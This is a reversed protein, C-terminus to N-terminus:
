ALYDASQKNIMTIYPRAYSMGTPASAAQEAVLEVGNKVIEDWSANQSVIRLSPFFLSMVYKASAAGALLPSTLVISMKQLTGAIMAAQLGSNDTAYRPFDLKVKIEPFGNERPQMINDYGAGHVADINRKYSVDLGSVVLATTGAVDAGSATNMKVAAHSFLVPTDQGGFTLADMQTAANTSSSDIVTNGRGKLEFQIRGDGVKLGFETPMVSAAEYIISPYEAALTFFGAVLDAWQITHTYASTDTPGSPAGATGFLLALATGLAGPDYLLDGGISIDPAKVDTLVGTATFPTDAYHGPSYDRSHVLGGISRVRIENGSGLAVATRWTSGKKLGAALLRREPTSPTAM